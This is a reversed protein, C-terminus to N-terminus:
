YHSERRVLMITDSPLNRNFRVKISIDMEKLIVTLKDRIDRVGTLVEKATGDSVSKRINELLDYITGHTELKNM